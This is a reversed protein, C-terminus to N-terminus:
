LTPSYYAPIAVGKQILTTQAAKFEAPTTNGLQWSAPHVEMYLADLSGVAQSRSLCPVIDWEAGEIDMKVIVYDAPISNEYILQPVNVCPVTVNTGKNVVNQDRMHNPHEWDSAGHAGGEMNSGWYNHTPDNDVFFTTKGKCMYAAKGGLSHVKGPYQMELQSLQNNFVPNAEVLFAEWDGNNACNAVPGYKNNLFSNFTNGGAAGLDIFVCKANTRAPPSWKSNMAECNCPKRGTMRLNAHSHSQFASVEKSQLEMGLPKIITQLLGINDDGNDSLRLNAQVEVAQPTDAGVMPMLFALRIFIFVM